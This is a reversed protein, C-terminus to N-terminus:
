AGFCLWAKVEAAVSILPSKPVPLFHTELEISRPNWSAQLAQSPSQPTQTHPGCPPLRLPGLPSVQSAAAARGRHQRLATRWRRCPSFSAPLLQSSHSRDGEAGKDGPREPRVEGQAGAESRREHQQGRSGRLQRGSWPRRSRM